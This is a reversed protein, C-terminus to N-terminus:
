AIIEANSGDVLAALTEGGFHEADILGGTPLVSQENDIGEVTHAPRGCEGAGVADPEVNLAVIAHGIDAVGRQASM